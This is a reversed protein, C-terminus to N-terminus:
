KSYKKIFNKIFVLMACVFTITYILLFILNWLTFYISKTSLIEIYDYGIDRVLNFPIKILLLIIVTYIIEIIMKRKTEKTKEKFSNVLDNIADTISYFINTKIKSLDLGRKLYIEKAIDNISINENKLMEESNKLEKQIEEEVLYKLEKELKKTREEIM